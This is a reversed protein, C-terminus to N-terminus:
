PISIEQEPSNALLDTRGPQVRVVVLGLGAPRGHKKLRNYREDPHLKLAM